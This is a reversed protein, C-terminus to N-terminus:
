LTANIKQYDVGFFAASYLMCQHPYGGIFSKLILNSIEFQRKSLGRKPSINREILQIFYKDELYDIGYVLRLYDIGRVKLMPVMCRGTENYQVLKPCIKVVWGEGGESCYKLWDQVATARENENNLNVIKYEVCKVHDSEFKRILDYRPEAEM